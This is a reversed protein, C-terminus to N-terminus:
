RGRRLRGLVRLLRGGGATRAWRSLSFALWAYAVVGAVVYMAVLIRGVVPSPCCPSAEAVLGDMM